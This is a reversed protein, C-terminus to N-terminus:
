IKVVNEGIGNSARNPHPNHPKETPIKQGPVKLIAVLIHGFPPVTINAYRASAPSKPHPKPGVITPFTAPANPASKFIPIRVAITNGIIRIPPTM